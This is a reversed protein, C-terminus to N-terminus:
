EKKRNKRTLFRMFGHGAPMVLGGALILAGLKNLLTNRTSGMMYFDPIANLSGLTGGGEIAVHRYSGNKEPLVLKSIQTANPGSAHCFTCNYSKDSTQFAHSTKTPTLIAKLYLDKNSTNSSFRRLEELSIYTDHNADVLEQIEKGAAKESLYNYDAIVPRSASGKIDKRAIYISLVFGETKTHCTVCTIAGLHLDTQPLWQAHTSAIKIQNHCNTCTANMELASVHASKQATHPNHCSGCDPAELSHKSITYQEAVDTHCEVCATTRAITKGDPHSDPVNDHCTRCGFQAHTTHQYDAGNIQHGDGVKQLDAHCKLCAANQATSNGFAFGPGEAIVTGPTLGCAAAVTAAIVTKKLLQTDPYM